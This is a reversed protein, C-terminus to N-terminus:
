IGWPLGKTKFRIKGFAPVFKEGKRTTEVYEVYGLKVLSALFKEVINRNWAWRKCLAKLNYVIEGKNVDVMVGNKGMIQRNPYIFAMIILDQYAEFRTFKIQRRGKKRM